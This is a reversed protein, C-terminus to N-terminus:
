SSTSALFRKVEEVFRDPHEIQPVHGCDDIITLDSGPILKHAIRGHELPIVGDKRGWILLTPVNIDGLRGRFNISDVQGSLSVGIRAAHLLNDRISRRKYHDCTVDILSSPLRSPDSFLRRLSQDAVPRFGMPLVLIESLWPIRALRLMWGVERGLGASGALVLCRVRRKLNLTMGLALLGGMSNGIVTASEWGMKDIFGGLLTVMHDLDYQERPPSESWGFGPLDLAVVEHHRSLGLQSWEWQELSAGLGHLLLVPAGKGVRRFRLRVGRVRLYCDQLAIENSPITQVM